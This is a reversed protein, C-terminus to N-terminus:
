RTGAVIMLYKGILYNYISVKLKDIERSMEEERIDKQDVMEQEMANKEDLIAELKNVKLLLRRIEVEKDTEDGFIIIGSSRKQEEWRQREKEDM